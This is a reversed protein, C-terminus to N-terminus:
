FSRKIYMDMPFFAPELGVIGHYNKETSLFFVQSELKSILFDGDVVGDLKIRLVDHEPLSWTGEVEYNITDAAYYTGTCRDGDYFQIHYRYAPDNDRYDPMRIAMLNYDANPTRINYLEWNANKLGLDTFTECGAWTFAVMVVMISFLVQKKKM